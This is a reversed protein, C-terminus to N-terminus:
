PARLEILEHSAVDTVVVYSASIIPRVHSGVSAPRPPTFPADTVVVWVCRSQAIQPDQPLGHSALYAGYSEEAVFTESNSPAEARGHAYLVAQAQTQPKMGTPLSPVLQFPVAHLSCALPSGSTSASHFAATSRFGRLAGVGPMRSNTTATVAPLSSHSQNPSTCGTTAVLLGTVVAFRAMLSRRGRFHSM